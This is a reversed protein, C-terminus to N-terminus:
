SAFEGSFGSGVGFYTHLPVNTRFALGMHVYIIEIREGSEVNNNESLILMLASPAM